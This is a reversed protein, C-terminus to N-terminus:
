AAVLEPLAPDLIKTSAPRVELTAPPRRSFRSRVLARDTAHGEHHGHGLKPLLDLLLLLLPVSTEIGPGVVLLDALRRSLADVGGIRGGVGYNRSRGLGREVGLNTTKEADDVARCRVDDTGTQRRLCSGRLRVGDSVEGIPLEVEATRDEILDALKELTPETRRRRRVLARGERETRITRGVPVDDFQGVPEHAVDGALDGAVLTPRGVEVLEDDRGVLPEFSLPGEELKEAVGM